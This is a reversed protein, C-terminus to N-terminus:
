DQEVLDRKRREWIERNILSYVGVPAGAKELAPRCADYGIEGATMKLVDEAVQGPGGREQIWMVADGLEDFEREAQSKEPERGM